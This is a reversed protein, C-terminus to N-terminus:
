TDILSVGSTKISLLFRGTVVRYEAIETGLVIAVIWALMDMLKTIQLSGYRYLVNKGMKCITTRYFVVIQLECFLNKSLNFYMLTM